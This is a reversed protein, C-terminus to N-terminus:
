QPSDLLRHNLSRLASLCISKHIDNLFNSDSAIAGLDEVRLAKGKQQAAFV